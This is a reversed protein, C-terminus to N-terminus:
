ARVTHRKRHERAIEIAREHSMLPGVVLGCTCVVLTGTHPSRDVRTAHGDLKTAM